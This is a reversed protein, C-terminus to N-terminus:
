FNVVETDDTRLRGPLVVDAGEPGYLSVYERYYSVVKKVYDRPERRPIMEVFADLELRGLTSRHARSMHHPGGNYSAVAMPFHGNFRDDLLRLYYVSYRLNISPNYLTQPSFLPEDLLASVKAGTGKIFQMLGIAGTHSLADPNYISEQRMISLVLFPDMDWRQCHPWLERAHAVPLALKKWAEADVTPRAGGSLRKAIHHHDRAALSALIWTKETIGLAAIAEREAASGKKQIRRVESYAARFIPGVEDYLGAQALHAADVLDPWREGGKKGLRVLAQMAADPDHHASTEFTDPINLDVTPLTGQEPPTYAEPTNSYPWSLKSWAIESPAPEKLMEAADHWGVQVGPEASARQLGPLSVVPQGDWRGDRVVWGDGKPQPPQLLLQYWGAKVSSAIRTRDAMTNTKGAAERARIRWYRAAMEDRGGWNILTTFGADAREHDGALHATLSRYFLAMRKPGNRAKLAGDWATTAAEWDGSLMVAHAVEDRQGRWPWQKGHKELGIQGWKAAKDWRGAKRWGEFISWARRGTAGGPSRYESVAKLTEPIPHRTSRAFSGTSKEVWATVEPNDEAQAKIEHFLSWAQDVWGSRRLSEALLMQSQIDDPVVADTHGEAALSELARRAGAGTAAFRHRLALSQLLPIAREPRYKATGLALRLDMEEERLHRKHEPKDLYAQYAKEAERLRGQDAKADGILVMCESVRRGAKHQDIYDLCERITAHPRGRKLDAVAEYWAAVKADGGEGRRVQYFVASARNYLGLEMYIRGLLLRTASRVRWSDREALFPELVARAGAYDAQHYRRRAEALPDDPLSAVTGPPISPTVPLTTSAGHCIAVIWIFILM